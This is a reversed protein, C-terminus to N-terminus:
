DDTMARRAEAGAAGGLGGLASEAVARGGDGRAVERLAARAAARAAPGAREALPPALLRALGAVLRGLCPTLDAPGPRRLLALVAAAAAANEGPDAELM